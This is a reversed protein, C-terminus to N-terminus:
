LGDRGFGYEEVGRERRGRERGGGAGGGWVGEWIRRAGGSLFKM